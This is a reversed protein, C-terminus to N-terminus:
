AGGRGKWADGLCFLLPYHFRFGGKGGGWRGRKALGVGGFLFWYVQGEGDCEKEKKQIHSITVCVKRGKDM